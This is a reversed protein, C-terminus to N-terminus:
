PRRHSSSSGHSSYGKVVASGGHPLQHETLRTVHANNMLTPKEHNVYVSEKRMVPGLYAHTDGKTRQAFTNSAIGWLKKSHPNQSRDPIHIKHRDMHDELTEKGHQKAIKRADNLVPVMNGHHDPRSGSWFVSGNPRPNVKKKIQASLMAAQAAHAFRAPPIRAVLEDNWETLVPAALSSGILMTICFVFPGSIHM